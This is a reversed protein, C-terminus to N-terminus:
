SWGGKIEAKEESLQGSIHVRGMEGVIRFRKQNYLAIGDFSFYLKAESVRSKKKRFYQPKAGSGM